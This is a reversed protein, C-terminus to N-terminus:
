KIFKNPLIDIMLHIRESDGNNEVRHLLNNNIEWCEGVAMNKSEKNVFFLVNKNTTIAIHHRRVAGLYDLNDRHEGVSKHPPMKIFVCKGVKGDHVLELNKIIPLVLTAMASQSDNVKLDYKDGLTWSNSHDYIFVSNTEKHVEYMSQRDKNAYWEDSYTSIMDAIASVDFNGHFRYNFPEGIKSLM